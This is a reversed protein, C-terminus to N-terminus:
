GLSCSGASGVGLSPVGPQAGDIGMWAWHEEAVVMFFDVNGKLVFMFQVHHYFARQFQILTNFSSLVKIM